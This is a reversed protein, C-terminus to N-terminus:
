FNDKWPKGLEGKDVGKDPSPKGETQEEIAADLKSKRGAIEKGAKKAAGFGLMGLLGGTDKKKDDSM